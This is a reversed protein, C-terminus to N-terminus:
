FRDEKERYDSIDAGRLIGRLEDLSPVPVLYILHDKAIVEIEQGPSIPVLRRIEKPIVVQYKPSVVVKAM